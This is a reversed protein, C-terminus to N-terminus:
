ERQSHSREASMSITVWECSAPRLMSYAYVCENFVCVHGICVCTDLVCGVSLSCAGQNMDNDLKAVSQLHVHQSNARVGFPVFFQIFERVCVRAAKRNALEVIPLRAIFRRCAAIVSASQM